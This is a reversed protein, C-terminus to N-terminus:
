SENERRKTQFLSDVKELMEIASQFRREPKKQIAKLIFDEVQIKVNPNFISPRPPPKNLHAEEIELSSDTESYFPVAGTVMEYFTIGLSYLDSRVGVDKGLIQEPSAYIPTGLIQSENKNGFDGFIKAIGFDAIKIRRTSDILINGPKIDGHIIHRTHAYNLGRLIQKLYSLADLIPLQKKKQLVEQLSNGRLYEMAIIHHSNIKRFCFIIIINPHNMQAQTMAETKFKDIFKLDNALHPHIVKLAVERNLMTDIAYYLTGMGGRGLEAKILFDGIKEGAQVM